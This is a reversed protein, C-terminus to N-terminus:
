FVGSYYGIVQPASPDSVDIVHLGENSVLYVTDGRVTIDGVFATMPLFSVEAPEAQEDIEMVRLGKDTVLYLYDGAIALRAQYRGEFLKYESELKMNTPPSVNVQWLGIGAVYAYEGQIAIDYGPMEVPRFEGLPAPRRPSSIDAAWIGGDCYPTRMSCSGWTAYLRDGSVAVASLGDTLSALEVPHARNHIDLVRLGGWDALFAVDGAMAVDQALSPANYYGVIRPRKPRSIDVIQLGGDPPAAGWADVSPYHVVYAYDGSVEVKMVRGPVDVTAVWRPRDPRKIEVVHLERDRAVYAYNGAVFGSGEVVTQRGCAILFMAGILLWMRSLKSM